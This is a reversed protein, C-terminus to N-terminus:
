GSECETAQVGFHQCGRHPLDSLKCWHLLCNRPRLEATFTLLMAFISPLVIGVPSDQQRFVTSGAIGGLGGFGVLSASAFARKWQGRINNAQYAMVTPIGGNATACILFIGFYRVGPPTTWRLVPLGIIGLCALGFLIPGRLRYRDGFWACAFMIIGAAGYPPASLLQAMGVDFGM